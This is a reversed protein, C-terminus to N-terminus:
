QPRTANPDPIFRGEMRDCLENMPKDPWTITRKARDIQGRYIDSHMNAYLMVILVAEGRSPHDAISDPVREGPRRDLTWATCMLGTHGHLRALARHAATLRNKHAVNALDVPALVFSDKGNRMRAFLTPPVDKGQDIFAQARARAEALLAAIDTPSM